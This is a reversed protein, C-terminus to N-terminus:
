WGVEVSRPVVEDASIRNVVVLGRGIMSTATGNPVVNASVNLNCSTKDLSTMELSLGRPQVAQLEPTSMKM